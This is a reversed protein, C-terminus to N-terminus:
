VAVSGEVRIYGNSTEACGGTIWLDFNNSGAYALAVATASGDDM